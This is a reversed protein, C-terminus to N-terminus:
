NRLPTVLRYDGCGCVDIFKLDMDKEYGPISRYHWLEAPKGFDDILRAPQVKIGDPPGYVIYTRGRDTEWGPTAAAFHMNAYALRRYHEKKYENEPTDPTPDRRLWFEEVFQDRDANSSLRIFATREDSTIIWRVDQDLWRQYEFPLHNSEKPSGVPRQSNYPQAPALICLGVLAAPLLSSCSKILSFAV